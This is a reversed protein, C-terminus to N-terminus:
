HSLFRDYFPLRFNDSLIIVRQLVYTLAARCIMFNNRFTLFEFVSLSLMFNRLIIKHLVVVEAATVVVEAIVVAVVIMWSSM